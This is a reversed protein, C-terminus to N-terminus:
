HLLGEKDIPLFGYEWFNRECAFGKGSLYDYLDIMECGYEDKRVSDILTVYVVVGIGPKEKAASPTIVEANTFYSAMCDANEDIIYSVTDCLDPYLWHLLIYAGYGGPRLAARKGRLSEFLRRVAERKRKEYDGNRILYNSVAKRIKNPGEYRPNDSLVNIHGCALNRLYDLRETPIIPNGGRNNRFLERGDNYRIYTEANTVAGRYGLLEQYNYYDKKLFFPIFYPSNYDVDQILAYDGTIDDFSDTDANCIKRILNDWNIYSFFGKVKQRKIKDSQVMLVTHWKDQYKHGHDSFYIKTLHGPLLNVYFNLQESVYELADKKQRKRQEEMGASFKREDQEKWMLDDSTCNLALYPFHTEFTSHTMICFPKNLVQMEEVAAWIREPFTSFTHIPYSIVFSEDMVKQHRCNKFTLGADKLTNLLPSNEYSVNGVSYGEDDVTKKGTFINVTSYNTFATMAYANEFVVADDRIGDLFGVLHEEGYQLADLWFMIISNNAVRSLGNKIDALLASVDRWFDSVANDADFRNAIYEGVYKEATVFDRLFLALTILRKLHYKRLKESAAARYARTEYWFDYHPRYGAYDAIRYDVGFKEFYMSQHYDYYNHSLVLGNEVFYDYLDIFEINLKRLEHATERRGYYSCLIVKDYTKLKDTDPVGNNWPETVM